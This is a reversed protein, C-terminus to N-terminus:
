ANRVADHIIMEGEKKGWERISNQERSPITPMGREQPWTQTGVSDLAGHGGSCEIGPDGQQSEDRGGTSSDISGM